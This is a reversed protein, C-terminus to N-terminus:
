KKKNVKGLVILLFKSRTLEDKETDKSKALYFASNFADKAEFTVGISTFKIAKMSTIKM